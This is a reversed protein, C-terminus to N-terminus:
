LSLLRLMFYKCYDSYFEVNYRDEKAKKNVM